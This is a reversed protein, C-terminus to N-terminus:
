SLIAGRRMFDLIVIGLGYQEESMDYFMIFDVSGLWGWSYDLYGCEMRRGCDM